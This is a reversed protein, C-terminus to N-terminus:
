FSLDSGSKGNSIAQHLADTLPTHLSTIYVAGLSPVLVRGDM